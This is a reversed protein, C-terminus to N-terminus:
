PLDWYCVVRNTLQSITWPKVHGDAFLVNFGGNHGAYFHGTTTWTNCALASNTHEWLSLTTAPHTLQSQLRGYPGTTWWAGTAPKYDPPTHGPFSVTQSDLQNIAYIPTWGVSQANTQNPCNFIQRGKAYAELLYPSTPLNRTAGWEPGVSSSSNNQTYGPSLDIWREDYDQRYVTMATNIQMENAGCTPLNVRSQSFVPVCIAAIITIVALILVYEVLTFGDRRNQM